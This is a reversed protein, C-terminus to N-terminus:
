RIAPNDNLKAKRHNNLIRKFLKNPTSVYYSFYTFIIQPFLLISAIIFKVGFFPYLHIQQFIFTAASKNLKERIHNNSINHFALYKKLMILVFDCSILSQKLSSNSPTSITLVLTKDIVLDLEYNLLENLLILNSSEQISHFQISINNGHLRYLLLPEPLNTIPFEFNLFLKTWLARDESHSYTEPYGGIKILHERSMMTTPHAIIPINLLMNWRVLEKETAYRFTRSPSNILQIQGGLVIIDPHNNLFEVQKELRYILSIDDADMRAIYKGKSVLAGKNLSKSVGLNFKNKVIKIRNDNEAYKSIINMSSDTSGDNVIIFEFNSYTQNLISEIAESIFIESNYVPMLVSVLPENIMNVNNM